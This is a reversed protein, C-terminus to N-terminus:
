WWKVAGVGQLLSALAYIFCVAIVAWLIKRVKPSNELAKIMEAGHELCIALFDFM